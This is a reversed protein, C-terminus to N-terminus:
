VLLGVEDALLRELADGLLANAALHDAYLEVAVRQYTVYLVIQLDDIVARLYPLDGRYEPGRAEPLVDPVGQYGDLEGIQPGPQRDPHLGALELGGDDLLREYVRSLLGDLRVQFGPRGPRILRSPARASPDAVARYKYLEKCIVSESISDRGLNSIRGVSPASSRAPCRGPSAFTATLQEGPFPMSFVRCKLSLSSSRPKRTTGCM